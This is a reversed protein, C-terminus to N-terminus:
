FECYETGAPINFVQSPILTIINSNNECIQQSKLTVLSNLKLVITGSGDFDHHNKTEVEVTIMVQLNSVKGYCLANSM